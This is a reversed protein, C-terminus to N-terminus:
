MRLCSWTLSFCVFGLPMPTRPVRERDLRAIFDGDNWTSVCVHARRGAAALGRALELAMIEKGSVYGGACVILADVPEAGRVADSVAPGGRLKRMCSSSRM